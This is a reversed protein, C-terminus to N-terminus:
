NFLQLAVTDMWEEGKQHKSRGGTPLETEHRSKGTMTDKTHINLIVRKSVWIHTLTKRGTQEHQLATVPSRLCTSYWLWAQRKHSQRHCLSHRGGQNQGPEPELNTGKEQSWTVEGATESKSVSYGGEQTICPQSFDVLDPDASPM